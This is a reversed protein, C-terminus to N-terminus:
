PRKSDISDANAHTPQGNARGQSNYSQKRANDQSPAAGSGSRSDEAGRNSCGFLMVLALGTPAILRKM